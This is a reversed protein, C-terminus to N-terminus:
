ASKSCSFTGSVKELAHGTILGRSMAHACWAQLQDAAHMPVESATAILAAASHRARPREAKASGAQPSTGPEPPRNVAHISVEKASGAQPSTGPEPAPLTQSGGAEALMECAQGLTRGQMLQALLLFHQPELSESVVTVGRRYVLVHQPRNALDIDLTERPQQRAEWVDRVPWASAILGASPQFQLRVESWQELSYGALAALDMPAVDHAHFAHCIRWELRALDPLFPLRETVPATMLFEPLGRGFFNLNYERSPYRRAYAEALQCFTRAGLVYRVAEYVEALAEETRSVYGRAYISLRAAGAIQRQPNLVDVLPGSQAAGHSRIASRMWRQLEALSPAAM